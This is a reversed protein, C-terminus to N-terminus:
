LAINNITVLNTQVAQWNMQFHGTDHRQSTLM